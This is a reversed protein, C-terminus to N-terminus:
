EKDAWAKMEAALLKALQRVKAQVNGNDPWKTRVKAVAAGGGLTILLGTSEKSSRAINSLAACARQCLIVSGLHNNVAALVVEIGGSTIAKKKGISCYALNRLAGCARQQLRQCKPFTRMVKAVAEVGGIAAIGAKSEDHRFTLSVIVNLTKNLTTLEALENLETVLDCAPIRDIAKDLCNQILHVLAFCGGVAQIECRKKKDKIFDLNLSDLATNVRANDSHALDQILKGVGEMYEEEEEEEEEVLVISASETTETMAPEESPEEIVLSADDFSCTTNCM